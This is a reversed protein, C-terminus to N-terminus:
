LATERELDNEVISADQVTTASMRPVEIWDVGDYLAFSALKEAM